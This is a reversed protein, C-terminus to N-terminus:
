GYLIILLMYTGLATLLSDIFLGYKLKDNKYIYHIKNMMIIMTHIMMSYFYTPSQALQCVSNDITLLLYTQICDQKKSKSNQKSLVCLFAVWRDLREARCFVLRVM